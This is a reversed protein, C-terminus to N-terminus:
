SFPNITDVSLGVFDKVNRTAITLGSNAAATGAILADALHLIRGKQQASARLKAAESAIHQTVPIVSGAYNQLLSTMTQNLQDRRQGKPLRQLGYEIEHVSIISLYAIDLQSVFDIVQVDPAKKGLESLINTDLLYLKSM